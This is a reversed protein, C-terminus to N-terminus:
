TSYQEYKSVLAGCYQADSSQAFAVGPLSVAVVALLAKVSINTTKEM